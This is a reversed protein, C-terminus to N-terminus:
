EFKLKQCAVERTYLVLVVVGATKMKTAGAKAPVCLRALKREDTWGNVNRGPHRTLVVGRVTKYWDNQFKAHTQKMTHTHAHPKSM